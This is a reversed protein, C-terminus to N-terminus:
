IQSRALPSGGTKCHSFCGRERGSAELHMKNHQKWAFKLVLKNQEEGPVQCHISKISLWLRNACRVQGLLCLSRNAYKNFIKKCSVCVATNHRARPAPLHLSHPSICQLFQAPLRSPLVPLPAQAALTKSKSGEASHEADAMPLPQPCLHM